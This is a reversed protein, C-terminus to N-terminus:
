VPSVDEIEEDTLIILKCSSGLNDDSPDLNSSEINIIYANNIPITHQSFIDVGSLLPVGNM